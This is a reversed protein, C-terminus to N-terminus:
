LDLATAAVDRFHLLVLARRASFIIVAQAPKKKVEM